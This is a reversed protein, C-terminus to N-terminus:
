LSKHEGSSCVCLCFVDVDVESCTSLRKTQVSEQVPSLHISGLQIGAVVQVFKFM